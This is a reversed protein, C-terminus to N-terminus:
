DNIIRKLAATLEANDEHKRVAIRFYSDDLGHFNACRRIMIGDKM